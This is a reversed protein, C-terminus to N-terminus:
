LRWTDTPYPPNFPRVASAASGFGSCTMGGVKDSGFVYETRVARDDARDVGHDIVHDFGVVRGVAM